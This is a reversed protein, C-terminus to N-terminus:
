SGNKLEEVEQSLEQIAKVLVPILEGPTLAQTGDKQEEWLHSIVEPHNDLAQKVDQAIFGIKGIPNDKEYREESDKRHTDLEPDIDKKKRWDFARNWLSLYLTDWLVTYM